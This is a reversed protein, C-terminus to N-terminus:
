HMAIDPRERLAAHILSLNEHSSQKALIRSWLAPSLDLNAFSHRGARNLALFFDTDAKIRCRDCSCTQQSCKHKPQLPRQAPSTPLCGEDEDEELDLTHLTMNEGSRFVERLALLGRRTIGNYRLDLSKLSTNSKLGGVIEMVGEDRLHNSDLVLTQITCSPDKLTEALMRAGTPGIENDTLNCVQVQAFCARSVIRAGDNGLSNHGLHLHRLSPSVSILRALDEASSAHLHDNELWLCVLPSQYSDQRWLVKEPRSFCCSDALRKVGSSGIGKGSLNLM